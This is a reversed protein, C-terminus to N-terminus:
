GQTREAERTYTHTTWSDPAHTRMRVCKSANTHIQICKYADQLRWSALIISDDRRAHCMWIPCHDEKASQFVSKHVYICWLRFADSHLADAHMLICKYADCESHMFVTICMFADYDSHMQICRMQMCGFANTHMVNLICAYPLACSHMVHVLHMIICCLICICRIISAHYHMYICWISFANHHLLHLAPSHMNICRVLICSVHIREFAFAHTLM